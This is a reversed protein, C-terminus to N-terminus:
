STASSSIYNISLITSTSPLSQHTNDTLTLLQNLTVVVEDKQLRKLMSLASPLGRSDLYPLWRLLGTM